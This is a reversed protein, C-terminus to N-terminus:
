DYVRFELGSAPTRPNSNRVSGLRKLKWLALPPSFTGMTKKSITCNKEANKLFYFGRDMHLLFLANQSRMPFGSHKPVIRKISSVKHLFRESSKRKQTGHSKKRASNKKNRTLSSDTKLRVPIGVDLKPETFTIFLKKLVSDKRM